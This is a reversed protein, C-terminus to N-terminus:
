RFRPMQFDLIILNEDGVTGFAIAAINQINEAMLIPNRDDIGNVRDVNVGIDHGAM